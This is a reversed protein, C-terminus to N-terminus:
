GRGHAFGMKHFEDHHERLFIERRPSVRGPDWLSCNPVGHCVGFPKIALLKHGSRTWPRRHRNFLVSVERTSLDFLYDWADVKPWDHLSQSAVNASVLLQVARQQTAADLILQSQDPQGTTAPESIHITKRM